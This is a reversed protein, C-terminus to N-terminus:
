IGSEITMINASPRLTLPFCFRSPDSDSRYQRHLLGLQIFRGSEVAAHSRHLGLSIVVSQQHRGVATVCAHIRVNIFRNRLFKIQHCVSSSEVNQYWHINEKVKICLWLPVLFCFCIRLISRVTRLRNLHFKTRLQSKNTQIIENENERTRHINMSSDHFFILVGAMQINILRNRLYTHCVDSIATQYWQLHSKSENM